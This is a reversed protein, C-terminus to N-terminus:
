MAERCPAAGSGCGLISACLTGAGGAVFAAFGGGPFAEDGAGVFAGDGGATFLTSAAFSAAAAGDSL